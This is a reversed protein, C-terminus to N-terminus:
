NFSIKEIKGHKLVCRIVNKIYIEDYFDNKNFIELKYPKFENEIQKQINQNFEKGIYKSLETYSLMEINYCLITKLNNVLM